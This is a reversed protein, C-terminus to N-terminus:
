IRGSLHLTFLAEAACIFIPTINILITNVDEHFKETEAEVKPRHAQWYNREYLTCYIEAEVSRFDSDSTYM